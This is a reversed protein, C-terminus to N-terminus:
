NYGLEVSSVNMECEIHNLLGSGIPSLDVTIANWKGKEIRGQFTFEAGHLSQRWENYPMILKGAWAHGWVLKLQFNQYDAFNPNGINLYLRLGDELPESKEVSILFTGTNTEISQYAKSFQNLLVSRNNVNDLREDLSLQLNSSYNELSAELGRTYEQISDNLNNSLEVMTPQITNVYNELKEIRQQLMTETQSFANQNGLCVLTLMTGLLSIFIFRNVRRQKLHTM